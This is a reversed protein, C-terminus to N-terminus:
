NQCEVLTAHRPGPNQHVYPYRCAEKFRLRGEEWLKDVCICCFEHRNLIRPFSDQCHSCVGMIPPDRLLESLTSMMREAYDRMSVSHNYRASFSGTKKDTLGVIFAQDLTRRHPRLNKLNSLHDDFDQTHVFFKVLQDLTGLATSQSAIIQDQCKPKPYSLAVAGMHLFEVYNVVLRKALGKPISSPRPHPICLQIYDYTGQYPLEEPLTGTNALSSFSFVM